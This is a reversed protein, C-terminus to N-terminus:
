SRDRIFGNIWVLEKHGADYIQQLEHIHSALLGQRSSIMARKEMLQDRSMNVYDDKDLSDIFEHHSEFIPVIEVSEGLLGGPLVTLGPREAEPQSAINEPTAM